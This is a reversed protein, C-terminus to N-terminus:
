RRIMEAAEDRPVTTQARAGLDKVTVTGAELEDPGLMLLFRAGIADAYRFQQKMKSAEPYVEIRAGAARLEAALAINPRM